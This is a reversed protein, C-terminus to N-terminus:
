TARAATASFECAQPLVVDLAVGGLFVAWTSGHWMWRGALGAFIAWDRGVCGGVRRPNHRVVQNLRRTTGDPLDVTSTALNRM